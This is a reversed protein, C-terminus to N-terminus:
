IALNHVRSDNRYMIRNANNWAHEPHKKSELTTENKVEKQKKNEKATQFCIIKDCRYITAFM